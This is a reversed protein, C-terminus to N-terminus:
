LLWDILRNVQENYGRQGLVEDLKVRDLVSEVEGLVGNIEGLLVQAQPIVNMIKAVEGQVQDLFNKALQGPDGNLGTAVSQLAPKAPQFIESKTPIKLSEGVPLFELPDTSNLSAIERWKSADGLHQQALSQLSDGSDIPAQFM